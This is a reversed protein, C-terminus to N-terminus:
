EGALMIIPKFKSNYMVRYFVPPWSGMHPKEEGQRACLIYHINTPYIYRRKVVIYNLNYTAVM